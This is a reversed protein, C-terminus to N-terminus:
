LGINSNFLNRKQETLLPCYYKVKLIGKKKLENQIKDAPYKIKKTDNLLIEAGRKSISYCSALYINRKFDVIGTYINNRIGEYISMIFFVPFLIIFKLFLKIKKYISKNINITYFLERVWIKTMFFGPKFYDIQLYDWNNNKNNELIVKDLTDKFNKNKIFVDDEFILAYEDDSELFKQWCRKHSLLCGLEGSKLPLGNEKIAFEKDYEDGIYTKGDVAEVRDYKIGLMNMQDDMFTMRDKDKELNIIYTKMNM